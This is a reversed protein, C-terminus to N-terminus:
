LYLTYLNNVKQLYDMEEFIIKSYIAKLVNKKKNIQNNKKLKENKMEIM